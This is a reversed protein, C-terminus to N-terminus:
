GPPPGPLRPPGVNGIGAAARVGAAQDAPLRAVRSEILTDLWAAGAPIGNLSREPDEHAAAHCLEEIFLPNGGAHRQIKGVVFPDVGPLLGGVAEAAEADTFPT